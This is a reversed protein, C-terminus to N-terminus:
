APRDRGILRRIYESANGQTECWEWEEDRMRITRRNLRRDAPKTTGVPRGRKRRGSEDGRAHPLTDQM